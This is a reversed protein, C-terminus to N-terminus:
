IRGLMQEEVLRKPCQFVLLVLLVESALEYNVERPIWSMWHDRSKTEMENLSANSLHLMSGVGTVRGTLIDLIPQVTRMMIKFMTPFTGM